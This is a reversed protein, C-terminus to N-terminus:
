ASSVISALLGQFRTTSAAPQARTPLLEAGPQLMSRRGDPKEPLMDLYAKAAEDRELDATLSDFVRSRTM